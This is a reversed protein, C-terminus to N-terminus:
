TSENSNNELNQLFLLDKLHSKVNEELNIDLKDLNFYPFYDVAEYGGEKQMQTTPIYGFVNGICGVGILTKETPLKDLFEQYAYVLEASIGIFAFLEFDLIQFDVENLSPSSSSAFKSEPVTILNGQVQIPKSDTPKLELDTIAQDIEGLISEVWKTYEEEEFDKFWSGFLAKRIREAFNSTKVVQSPPRLDGSFGQLFLFPLNKGYINRLHQRVEGVYHADFTNRQPLSTPHCPFNWIVASVEQNVKLL